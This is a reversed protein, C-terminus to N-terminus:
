CMLKRPLNLMFSLAALFAYEAQFRIPLVAFSLLYSDTILAYDFPMFVTTVVIARTFQYWLIIQM